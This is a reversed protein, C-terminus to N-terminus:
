MCTSTNWICDSTLMKYKVIKKKLDSSYLLNNAYVNVSNLIYSHFSYKTPRVVYIVLPPPANFLLAKCKILAMFMYRHPRLYM